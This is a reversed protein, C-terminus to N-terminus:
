YIDSDQFVDITVPWLGSKRFGSVANNVSATKEYAVNLIDAVQWAIVPRDVPERM